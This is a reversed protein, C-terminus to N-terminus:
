EDVQEEAKKPAEKKDEDKLEEECQNIHQNLMHVKESLTDRERKLNDVYAQAMEKQTPM